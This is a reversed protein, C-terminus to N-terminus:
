LAEAVEGLLREIDFPKSLVRISDDSVGCPFASILIFPLGHHEPHNRVKALLEIGDMGPMMYDSIILDIHRIQLLAYAENGNAATAVEYGQADLVFALIELIDQEDDAIMITKM